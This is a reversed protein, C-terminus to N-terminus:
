FVLEIQDIISAFPFSISMIMHHSRNTVKTGPQSMRLSMKKYDQVIESDIIDGSEIDICDHLSNDLNLYLLHTQRIL